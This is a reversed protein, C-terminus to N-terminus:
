GSQSAAGTATRQQASGNHLIHCGPLSRKLQSAGAATVQTGRLDLERLNHLGHLHVLAKDTIDACMALNLRELSPVDKLFALDNDQSYPRDGSMNMLDIEVIRGCRLRGVGIRNWIWDLNTQCTGRLNDVAVTANYSRLTRFVLNGVALVLVGVVITRLVWRSRKLLTNIPNAM